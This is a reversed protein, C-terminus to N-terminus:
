CSKMEYIVTQQNEVLPKEGFSKCDDALVCIDNNAQMLMNCFVIFLLFM